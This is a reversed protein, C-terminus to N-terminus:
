LSLSLAHSCAHTHTQKYNNKIVANLRRRRKRFRTQLTTRALQTHSTAFSPAFSDFSLWLLASSLFLLVCFCGGFFCCVFCSFFASQSVSQSFSRALTSFSRVFSHVFLAPLSLSLSSSAAAAAAASPLCCVSAAYCLASRLLQAFSSKYSSRRQQM